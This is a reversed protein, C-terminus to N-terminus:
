NRSLDYCTLSTMDRLYLRGNAVVPHAWTPWEGRPVDFRGKEVYEKPNAEVLAVQNKEGYVYIHGDAYTVSGKGASRDQWAISGSAIDLCILTNSGTGYLYGDVLVMGGHHNQMKNEFYVPESEFGNDTRNIRCLGGGTGYASASFVTDGHVIPTSVNATRNASKEYSWLLKGSDAELGIVRPPDGPDKKSGRGGTFTVIQRVGHITALAASCYHAKDGVDTSRWVVDGTLKNLAAVCGQDGGPTVIIRDGDILPSESYGWGPVSGGLDSVLHKAWVVEGNAAKLCTMDGGGGIAYVLDGDITPTGRGGDGKGHKYLKTETPPHVSWLTAGDKENLCIIRGEGDVNGMTIIRGDAVAISSYSEGATDVKWAVPPGDAPWEGLLGRDHSLGDRNIGRWQPWDTPSAAQVVSVSGMLALLLPLCYRNM